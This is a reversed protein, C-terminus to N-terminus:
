KGAAILRYACSEPLWRVTEIVDLTLQICDPVRKKRNRYDQCRCTKRDLLACSVSTEYLDGTDEDELKHMCCRGCGDCLSKWEAATMEDLTKTQWFPRSGNDNKM